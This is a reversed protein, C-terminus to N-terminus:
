IKRKPILDKFYSITEERMDERGILYFGKALLELNEDRLVFMGAHDVPLKSTIRELEEKFKKSM